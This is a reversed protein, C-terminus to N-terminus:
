NNLPPGHLYPYPTPIGSLLDAPGQWCLRIVNAKGASKETGDAEGGRCWPPTQTLQDISFPVRHGFSRLVSRGCSSGFLNPAPTPSAHHCVSSFVIKKAYPAQPAIGALLATNICRAQRSCRIHSDVSLVSLYCVHSSNQVLSM